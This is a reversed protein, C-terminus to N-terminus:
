GKKLITKEDSIIYETVLIEGCKQLATGLNSANTPKNYTQSEENFEAVMNVAMLFKKFLTPHFASALDFLNKEVSRLAILFRAELRLQARIFFLQVKRRADQLLTRSNMAPRGTCKTYHDRFNEKAYSDNCHPCHEFDAATKKGGVQVRRVSLLLGKNYNPDSNYLADRDKRIAEILKGRENPKAPHLMCNKVLTEERHVNRFYRAFNLKLVRCYLCFHPKDEGKKGKSIAPVLSVESIASKMSTTYSSSFSKSKNSRENDTTGEELVRGDNDWNEEDDDEEPDPVYSRDNILEDFESDEVM